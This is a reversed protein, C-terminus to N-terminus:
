RALCTDDKSAWYDGERLMQHAEIGNWRRLFKMIWKEAVLHYFVHGKHDVFTVRVQHIGPELPAPERWNLVNIPKIALGSSRGALRVRHRDLIM